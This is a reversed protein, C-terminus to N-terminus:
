ATSTLRVAAEGDVQKVFVDGNREFTVQNGDPSLSPPGEVGPYTTLPIVRSPPSSERQALALWAIAALALLASLGGAVKWARAGGFGHASETEWPQIDLHTGRAAWWADLEPKFAYVTGSRTHLHRHVPLGEEREWRTVTRVSRKLYAAIEKWSDLRDTTM